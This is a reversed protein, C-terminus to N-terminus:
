LKLLAGGLRFYCKGLRAKWWWDKFDNFKTAEVCLDLAKRTNQEVFLLYDVLAMALGTKSAYLKVNLKEIDVIKGDSSGALSATSLRVERGLTTLPRATGARRSSQLMEKINGSGDSSQSSSPRSFGTLPRGSQSVPRSIQDFSATKSTQVVNLSTGPRFLLVYSFYNLVIEQLLLRPISSVANEDLIMEAVSEGDLDIDDLYNLKIQAKCSLLWM